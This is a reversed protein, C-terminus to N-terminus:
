RRRLVVFGTLWTTIALAGAVVSPVVSIATVEVSECGPDDSALTYTYTVGVATDTDVYQAHTENLDAVKKPAGDGASRLLAVDGTLNSADVTVSGDGHPRADLDGPPCLPEVDEGHGEMSTPGMPDAAVMPAVAVMGIALMTLIMARNNM